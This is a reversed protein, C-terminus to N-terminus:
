MAGRRSVNERQEGPHSLNERQEGPPRLRRAEDLAVHGVRGLHAHRRRLREQQRGPAPSWEGDADAGQHGTAAQEVDGDDVDVPALQHAAPQHAGGHRRREHRAGELQRQRDAGAGVLPHAVRVRVPTPAQETDPRARGVRQLQAVRPEVDAGARRRRDRHAERRHRRRADCLDEDEDVVLVVLCLLREADTGDVALCRWRRRRRRSLM